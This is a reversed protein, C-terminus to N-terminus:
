NRLGSFWVGIKKYVYSSLIHGQNPYVEEFVTAGHKKLNIKTNYFERISVSKDKGGHVLYFNCKNANALNGRAGFRLSAGSIVAVATFKEPVMLALSIAMMGGASTGALFISRGKISYTDKLSRTIKKIRRYLSKVDALSDIQSYDVDLDVVIFNQKEASFKWFNIDDKATVGWGPLSVLISLEEAKLVGKPLFLFYGQSSKDIIQGAFINNILVLSLLLFIFICNFIKSM